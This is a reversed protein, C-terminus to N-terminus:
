SLVEHELYEGYDLLSKLVKKDSAPTDVRSLRNKVDRIFTVIDLAGPPEPTLLRSACFSKWKERDGPPLHESYNRGIYRWLLEPGRSDYMQFHGGILDDPTSNRITSFVEKDEDPFFDGSYIQLEPDRYKREETRTFVSRVKQILDTKGKLREAHRLCTDIDIDLAKARDGDLTTLPALAPSRNVHVGKLPIREGPELESGPTFIRRRIEEVDEDIWDSPDRRLDYTIVVNPSDPQASVPFVITTCGHVSTFMGSTHVVPQPEQLSLLARAENKKRLKFYYRFLREQKEFLLKALGITAKVDSLADHAKEHLVGNTAALVELKFVPKGEEDVPWEIGEPRLDHAMRALDIIDWRSNNHEYERKYPDYFNRYFLARIFEDDFRINNYGATCTGPESMLAHIRGAFERETIGNENVFFPTLGSVLCAEPHPVYDPSLRCYFNEETGLTEFRNDTRIAAFQGIRDVQPHTGFTELDYWLLTQAM